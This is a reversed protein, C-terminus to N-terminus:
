GMLKRGSALLKWSLKVSNRIPRSVYMQVDDAYMHVECNSMNSRLDNVYV